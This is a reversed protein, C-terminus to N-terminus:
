FLLEKRISVCGQGAAMLYIHQNTGAVLTGIHPGLPRLTGVGRMDEMVLQDCSKSWYRVDDYGGDCGGRANPTLFTSVFHAGVADRTEISTSFLSQDAGSAAAMVVGASPHPGVVQEGIQRAMNICRSANLQSALVAVPNVPAAPQAPAGGAILCASVLCAWRRQPNGPGHSM